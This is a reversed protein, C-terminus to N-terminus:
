KVTETVPFHKNGSAYFIVVEEGYDSYTHAQLMGIRNAYRVLCASNTAIAEATNDKAIHTAIPSRTLNAVDFINYITRLGPLPYVRSFCLAAPFVLNLSPHCWTKLV